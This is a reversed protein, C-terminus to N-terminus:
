LEAPDARGALILATELLFYNGWVLENSIAVEKVRNYCGDVLAGSDNVHRSLLADLTQEAAKRYREGALPALKALASAAIATASTDLVADPIAPDDFDWYCVLDEPVHDLYWDAVQVAAGTFEPMRHAAQTFGLMAWAQARAWTSGASSGNIAVQNTLAGRDDYTASQAVSGDPRVCMAHHARANAAALARLRPDGTHDAAFALLPITGPLGDVCAGPRPWDYREADETGPPIVGGVPDFDACLSRAATSAVDALPGREQGLVVGLAAGYWFLFGRLVTPATTRAALRGGYETAADAYGSHGTAVASLRLLGPWFGGFWGGDASWTWEGTVPDAVMPFRDAALALTQDVRGVLGDVADQVAGIRGPDPAARLNAAIAGGLM